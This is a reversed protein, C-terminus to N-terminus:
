FRSRDWSRPRTSAPGSSPSRRVRDPQVAPGDIVALAARANTTVFRPAFNTTMRLGPRARRDEHRDLAALLGTSSPRGPLVARDRRCATHHAPAGPAGADEELRREALIIESLMGTSFSCRTPAEPQLPTDIAPFRASLRGNDIYFNSRYVPRMARMSSGSTRSRPAEGIGRPQRDYGVQRPRLRRHQSPRVPPGAEGLGRDRVVQADQALCPHHAPAAHSTSRTHAQLGGRALSQGGRAASRGPSERGAVGETAPSAAFSTPRSSGACSRPGQRCRASWTSSRSRERGCGSGPSATLSGLLDSFDPRPGRPDSPGADRGRRPISDFRDRSSITRSGRDVRVRRRAPRRGAGGDRSRPVDRRPSARRGASDPQPWCAAWREAQQTGERDAASARGGPGM